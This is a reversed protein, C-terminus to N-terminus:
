EQPQQKNEPQDQEPRAVVRLDGGDLKAQIREVNVNVKKLLDIMERRQAGANPIGQAETPQAISLAEGGPTGAWVTWLNLMLLLALITLISNLYRLSRM